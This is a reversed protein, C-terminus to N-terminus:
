CNRIKLDSLKYDLRKTTGLFDDFFWSLDKATGSEFITRLDEPVPHRNKWKRYYDHMISDFLSDGLYARLYNFGQSAKNYIINGYNDYSYEYSALNVPQELNKRAPIIWALEQIRQVPMKEIRFFRALKRNKLSIEWLKKEPYRVEMYRSEYPVQLAKMWIHSDENMQDSHVTFGATVFKM